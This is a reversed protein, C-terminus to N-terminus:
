EEGEDLEPTVAEYLANLAEATAKELSALKAKPVNLIDAISAIVDLKTRAKVKAAAKAKSQYVKETALKAVISKVTKGFKAAYAAVTEDTPMAVYADVLERTQEPTYNVIKTEATM